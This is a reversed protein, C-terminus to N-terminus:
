LHAICPHVSYFCFFHWHWFWHCFCKEWCVQFCCSEKPVQFKWDIDVTLLLSYEEAGKLREAFAIAWKAECRRMSEVHLAFTDNNNEIIKMFAYYDPRIKWFDENFYYIQYRIRSLNLESSIQLYISTSFRFNSVPHIKDCHWHTRDVVAKRWESFKDDRTYKLNHLLGADKNISIRITIKSKRLHLVSLEALFQHCKQRKEQNSYIQELKTSM